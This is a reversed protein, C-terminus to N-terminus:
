MDDVNGERSIHSGYLIEASSNRYMAAYIPVLCVDVIVNWM